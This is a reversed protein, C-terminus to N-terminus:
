VQVAKRYQRQGNTGIGRRMSDQIQVPDDKDAMPLFALELFCWSPAPTCASAAAKLACSM